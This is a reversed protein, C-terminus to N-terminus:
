VFFELSTDGASGSTAEFLTKSADRGDTVKYTIAGQGTKRLTITVKVKVQKGDASFEKCAQVSIGSIQVNQAYSPMVLVLVTLALWCAQTLKRFIARPMEIRRQTRSRCDIYGSKRSVRDRHPTYRVPINGATYVFIRKQREEFFQLSLKS